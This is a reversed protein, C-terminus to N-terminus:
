ASLSHIVPCESDSIAPTSYRGEPLVPFPYRRQGDSLDRRSELCDETVVWVTATAATTGSAGTNFSKLIGEIKLQITSVFM